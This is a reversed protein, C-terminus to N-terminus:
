QPRQRWVQEISRQRLYRTEDSGADSIESSGAKVVIESVLTAVIASGIGIANRRIIVADRVQCQELSRNM